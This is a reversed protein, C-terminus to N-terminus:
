KPGVLAHFVERARAELEALTGHNPIVVDARSSKEARTLQHGMRARVDAEAFRAKATLREVSRGEEADVVVMVDLWSKAQWEPLLAADVVIVHSAGRLEKIRAKIRSVLAERTLADLNRANESSAFAIKGLRAPDIEGHADLVGGGFAAVVGDKIPGEKLMQKGLADADIVAAGLEGFVRAVTSKGAGMIGTVGIVISKSTPKM